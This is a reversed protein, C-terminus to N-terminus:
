SLAREFIPGIYKEVVPIHNGDRCSYFMSLVPNTNVELFVYNDPTAVVTHDHFMLDIALYGTGFQSAIMEVKQIYSSDIEDLVNYVSAGGSIMTSKNLEIVERNAPVKNSTLLENDVLLESLQPYSVFTDTVLARSKNEESILQAITQVGDGIVHAKRRILAACVTGDVTLFRIEEGYFQKQVLVSPSFEFAKTIATKLHSETTINLTLGNSAFSNHPKVIVTSAAKLFSTAEEDERNAKLVALTAPVAVGFLQVFDYMSSKNAFLGQASISTFPPALKCQSIVMSRNTPSIIQVYTRRRAGLQFKKFTYGRPELYRQIIDLSLHRTM